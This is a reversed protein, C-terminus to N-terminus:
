RWHCTISGGGYAYVCSSRGGSTSFAGVSSALLAATASLIILKKKM